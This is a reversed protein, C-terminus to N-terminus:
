ILWNPYNQQITKQYNKGVPLYLIGMNETELHIEYGTNKQAQKLLLSSFKLYNEDLIKKLFQTFQTKKLYKYTPLKNLSRILEQPIRQSLFSLDKSTLRYKEKTKKLFLVKMPNVLISRHIRVVVCSLKSNQSLKELSLFIKKEQKTEQDFIVKAGGEDALFYLIKPLNGRIQSIEVKEMDKLKSDISKESSTGQDAAIMIEELILDLYIQLTGGFESGEKKSVQIEIKFTETQIVFKPDNSFNKLFGEPLFEQAHFLLPSENKYLTAVSYPITLCMSQFAERWIDEQKKKRRIAEALKQISQYSQEEWYLLKEKAEQLQKLRLKKGELSGSITSSFIQTFHKKKCNDDLYQSM